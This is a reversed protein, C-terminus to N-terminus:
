RAFSVALYDLGLQAALKIDARDKDTLAGASLGGGQKNIGKNDSLEGGVVVRTEIRPGQVGVVDLEIHGDNLLLVDGSRVDQPLKKYAVGVERTTGADPDLSVDLAFPQGENLLVKGEAFREIRIKPGQLDGLVAVWKGVREAAERVLQV